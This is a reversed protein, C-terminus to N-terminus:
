QIVAGRTCDDEVTHIRVSVFESKKPSNTINVRIYNNTLAEKTGHLILAPLNEGIFRNRYELNKRKALKRL